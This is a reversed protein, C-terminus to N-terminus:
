PLTGTGSTTSPLTWEGSIALCARAHPARATTTPVAIVSMVQSVRCYWCAIADQLTVPLRLRDQGPNRRSHVLLSALDHLLGGLSRGTPASAGTDAAYVRRERGRLLLHCVVAQLLG